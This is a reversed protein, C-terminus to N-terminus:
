RDYQDVAKNLQYLGLFTVGLVCLAVAIVLLLIQFGQM